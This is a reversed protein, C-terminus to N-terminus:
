KGNSGLITQLNALNSEFKSKSYLFIIEKKREMIEHMELRRYFSLAKSNRPHVSVIAADFHLARFAFGMSLLTSELAAKQPKNSSLIWSGWNFIGDSFDYIRVTGIKAGNHNEIIFYYEQHRQERLKYEKIWNFQETITESGRSIYGDNTHQSRLSIIFSSDDETALRLLLNPGTILIPNRNWTIM